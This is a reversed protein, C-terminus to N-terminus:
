KKNVIVVVDLDDDEDEYRPAKQKVKDQAKIDRSGKITISERNHSKLGMM